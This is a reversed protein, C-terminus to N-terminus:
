PSVLVEVSSLNVISPIREGPEWVKVRVRTTYDVNYTVDIAFTGYSSDPQSAVSVQRTGLIKGDSSVIEIMLPKGSRPRALGEVRMTGGQILRNPKPSTLVINVLQDVPEFLDQNGM